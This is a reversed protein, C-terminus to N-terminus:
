GADPAPWVALVADAAAHLESATLGDCAQTSIGLLFSHIVAALADPDTGAPLEGAARGREVCGRIRNRGVARWRKMTAHADARDATGDGGTGALSVLCGLPHAPDTQMDISRHLMAAVADRPSRSEDDVVATVSGPGAMYHEVAKEFLGHKSGFSGYLSASSLGTAERLQALSTADYGHEWFLLAAAELVRDMEFARPRGVSAM